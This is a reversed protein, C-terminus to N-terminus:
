KETEPQQGDQSAKLNKELNEQSIKEILKGKQALEVALRIITTGVSIYSGIVFLSVKNEKVCSIVKEDDAYFGEWDEIVFDILDSNYAIQDLKERTPLTQTTVLELLRKTKIELDSVESIEKFLNNYKKNEIVIIDTHKDLCKRIQGSFLPRIKIKIKKREEIPYDGIETEDFQHHSGYIWVPNIELNFKIM